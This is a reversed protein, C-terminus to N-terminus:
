VEMLLLPVVFAGRTTITFVYPTASVVSPTGSITVTNGTVVATVGAPLGTVNAGTVSGEFVYTITQIATNVCVTQNATAPLSTLNLTNGINFSGGELFCASDLVHDNRDAIVMKIHYTENPTVPAAATMKVTQGDFNTASAATNPPGNYVGFYSPNSSACNPNYAEDRITV